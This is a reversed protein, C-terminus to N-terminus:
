SSIINKWFDIAKDLWGEASTNTGLGFGHGLNPYSHFETKIGLNNLRDAQQKMRRPNAIWDNEGVYMFTAPEKKSFDSHGTYGMIVANLYPLEKGGFAQVGYSGIYAAMRAGASGGWVSYNQTSVGLMEANDFLYTIAQALDQMAWDASGVRYKIVFANYGCKSLALAIPFGEHLSGVYSFGGGPCIIAFPANPNGRFFFIGTNKQRNNQKPYINYFVQKGQKAEILLYNLPSLIDAPVINNHYPMLRGIESIKVELNNRSEDDWPLLKKAFGEFEPTRLIDRVTSQESFMKNNSEEAAVPLSFLVGALIIDCIKNLRNAMTHVQKQGAM